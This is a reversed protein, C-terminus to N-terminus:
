GPPVGDVQGTLAGYVVPGGFFLLVSLGAITWATAEGACRLGCRSAAVGRRWGARWCREASPNSAHQNHARTFQQCSRQSSVNLWRLLLPCIMAWPVTFHNLLSFPNPNM